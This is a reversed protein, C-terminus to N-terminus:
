RTVEKGVTSTPEPSIYKRLRYTGILDYFLTSDATTGDWSDQLHGLTIILKTKDYNGPITIPYRKWTQGDDGSGTQDAYDYYNDTGCGEGNGWDRCVKRQYSSKTGDSLGVAVYWRWRSSTTYAVESLWLYLTSSTSVGRVNAKTSIKQLSTRTLPNSVGGTNCNKLYSRLSKSGQYRRSTSITADEGCPSSDVVYATEIEGSAGLTGSSHDWYSIASKSTGNADLEFDGNADIFTDTFSSRDEGTPNGYYLYIIKKDNSPLSPIKAWFRTTAINCDSERWFSLATKKDSDTFQLDFCDARLKAANILVSTDITILVQYDSQASSTNNITIPIRYAYNSSFWSDCKNVVCASSFCDSSKNCSKGDICAPCSGGCDVDSESGNKIKDTCTAWYGDVSAPYIDTQRRFDENSWDTHDSSNGKLDGVSNDVKCGDGSTCHSNPIGIDILGTTQFDYLLSGIDNNNQPYTAISGPCGFSSFCFAIILLAYLLISSSFSLFSHLHGTQM